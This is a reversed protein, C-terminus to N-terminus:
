SYMLRRSDMYKKTSPIRARDWVMLYPASSVARRRLAGDSRPLALDWSRSAKGESSRSPLCPQLVSRARGAAPAPAPWPEATGTTSHESSTAPPALMGGRPAAELLASSGLVATGKRCCSARADPARRLTGLMECEHKTCPASLEPQKLLRFASSTEQKRLQPGSAKGLAASGNRRPEPGAGLESVSSHGLWNQIGLPKKPACHM